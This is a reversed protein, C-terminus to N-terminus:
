KREGTSWMGFSEKPYSKRRYKSFIEMVHKQMKYNHTKINDTQLEKRIYRSKKEGKFTVGAAAVLFRMEAGEIRRRNNSSIKKVESGYSLLSRAM